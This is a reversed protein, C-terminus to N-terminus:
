FVESLSEISAEPLSQSSKVIYVKASGFFSLTNLDNHFDEVVIQDGYLTLAEMEDTINLKVEKFSEQVLHDEDGELILLPPLGKQKLYSKLQSLSM